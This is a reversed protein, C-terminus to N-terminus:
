AGTANSVEEFWKELQNILKHRDFEISAYNLANEGLAKLELSPMSVMKVVNMALQEYDGSNATLGCQAEDIVRSGEGSLMSLIPKSSMMYSQVKSPITMSFVPSEKLTVLLADSASYFYPMSELSHRGLFTVYDTLKRHSVEQKISEFARGDGVIIFIVNVRQSKLIEVANIISPFDQAEGINGAFLVKFVKDTTNLADIANVNNPSIVNEAWNPLYKIKSHDDCYLAIGEYFAKSQGLVMECRNYIFRVMGGIWRLLRPSKVVGVSELTEPWLDQVWLVIPVNKVKKILIAPLCVTVPSPEYVFIVDFRSQRLKWLGIISALVVYSLYNLVLKVGSDQGRALIPVRIIKCGGFDNFDQPNEIFDPFVDGSPYNPKGTLVSVQHGRSVLETCLDNIRFNEPWFYQSVVLIHM